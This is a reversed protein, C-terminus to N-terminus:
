RTHFQMWFSWPIIEGDAINVPIAEGTNLLAGVEHFCPDDKDFDVRGPAGFLHIHVDCRAMNGFRDPEVTIQVIYGFSAPLEHHKRLIRLVEKKFAGKDPILQREVPFYRMGFRLSRITDYFRCVPIKETFEACSLIRPPINIKIRTRYKARGQSKLLTIEGSVKEPNGQADPTIEAELSIEEYSKVEPYEEIIQRVLQQYGTDTLDLNLAHDYKKPAESSTNHFSRSSSVVGNKLTYITEYEYIRDQWWEGYQLLEGHVARLEGSFWSAHTNEVIFGTIDIPRDTADTVSVFRLTDNQLRWLGLYDRALGSSFIYINGDPGTISREIIKCFTKYRVSDLEDFPLAFMELTDKGIIIRESEQGTAHAQLGSISLFAIFLLKRM